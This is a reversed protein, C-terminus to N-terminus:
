ELGIKKALKEPIADKHVMVAITNLRVYAESMYVYGGKENSDEDWSNKTVYYMTGHQDKMIGTLHMLHDDTASYNDFHEQRMDQDVAKEDGPYEFSYLEKSKEADTLNEWRSRETGSLSEVNKDPLIALANKHSFGRDSVDGDWCVSYGNRLAYEILNMMEELPVNYYLDDSWNDPIELLVKEYFPYISYSTIEIYDDPNIGLSAAYSVPTYSTGAYEFNAPVDGLYTDLIANYADFWVPTLSGGRRKVVADLFGKLVADLEGHDHKEDDIPLGPYVSEPLLGYDRVVNIVDHGQGGPGFNSNGHLRVYKLGKKAYAYRVSYMESLDTEQESLRLVEAELFSIAAFAWCTGSRHQDKVSTVPVEALMEFIFTSDEGTKQASVNTNPMIFAVVTLALLSNYLLKM